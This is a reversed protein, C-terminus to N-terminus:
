ACGVLTRLEEDLDTRASLVEQQLRHLWPSPELGLQERMVSRIRHFVELAHARRGCRYLALMLQGHLSEHTPDLSALQNLEDLIAHHRGLILDLQIRRELVSRRRQELRLVEAQLVPGLHVDVLAPGSWLALASHLTAAATLHDGADIMRSGRRALREFELVDCTGDGLQLQYGNGATVLIRKATAIDPKGEKPMEKGLRNRLQMVYTQLTTSASRPPHQEWLEESIKNTTVLTGANLALLALLSRTKRATPVVSAEDIAVHLPGLVKVLM